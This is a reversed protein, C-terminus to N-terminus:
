PSQLCIRIAFVLTEQIDELELRSRIALSELPDLGMLLLFPFVEVHERITRPLVTALRFVLLDIELGDAPRKEEVHTLGVLVLCRTFTDASRVVDWTLQLM